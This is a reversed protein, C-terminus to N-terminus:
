KRDIGEKVLFPGQVGLLLERKDGNLHEFVTARELCRLTVLNRGRSLHIPIVPPSGDSGPLDMVTTRRGLTDNIEVRWTKSQPASPGPHFRHARLGYDGDAPVLLTLQTEAGSMWFFQQQELTELGNPNEIGAILGQNATAILSFRENHWVAGPRYGSVLM